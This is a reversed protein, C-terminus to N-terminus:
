LAGNKMGACIDGALMRSFVVAGNANIHTQDALMGATFFEPHRRPDAHNWVPVDPARRHMAERLPDALAYILVSPSLAVGVRFGLARAEAVLPLMRAAHGEGNRSRYAEIWRDIDAISKRAAAEAQPNPEPPPGLDYGRIAAVRSFDEKGQLDPFFLGTLSGLGSQEYLFGGIFELLLMARKRKLRPLRWIDEIFLPLNGWTNFFRTRAFHRRHFGYRAVPQGIILRTPRGAQKRQIQRMVYRAEIPNLADIGMNFSRVRCGLKAMEADFIEPNIATKYRSTGLFVLDIDKERDFQWMRLSFGGMYPEPLHSRSFANIGAAALLCACLFLIVLRLEHQM